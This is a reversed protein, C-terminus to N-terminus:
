RVYHPKDACLVGNIIPRDSCTVGSIEPVRERVREKCRNHMRRLQRLPDIVKHIIWTNPSVNLADWDAAARYGAISV